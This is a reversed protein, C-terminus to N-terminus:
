VPPLQHPSDMPALLDDSSSVPTTLGEEIESSNVNDTRWSLQRVKQSLRMGLYPGQKQIYDHREQILTEYHAKYKGADKAFRTKQEVGNLIFIIAGLVAAPYKTTEESIMAFIPVLASTVTQAIRMFLAANTYHRHLAQYEEIKEDLKKLVRKQEHNFFSNRRLRKVKGGPM